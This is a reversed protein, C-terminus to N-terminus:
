CAITPITNVAHLCSGSSFSIHLDAISKATYAFLCICVLHSNHEGMLTSNHCSWKLLVYTSTPLVVLKSTNHPPKLATLLKATEHPQSSCKKNKKQPRSTQSAPQQSLVRLRMRVVFVAVTSLLHFSLLHPNSNTTLRKSQDYLILTM